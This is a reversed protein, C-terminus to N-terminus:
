CVQLAGVTSHLFWAVTVTCITPFALLANPKSAQLANITAPSPQIAAPDDPLPASDGEGCIYVTGDPRPYVEPASQRGVHYYGVHHGRFDTFTM